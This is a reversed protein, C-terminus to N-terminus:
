IDLTSIEHDYKFRSAIIEKTDLNLLNNALQISINNDISVIYEKARYKILLM